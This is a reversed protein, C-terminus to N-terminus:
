FKIEFAAKINSENEESEDESETVEYGLSVKAAENLNVGLGINWSSKQTNLASEIQAPDLLKYSASFTALDKFDLEIGTIQQKVNNATDLQFNARIAGLDDTFSVGFITSSGLYDEFENNRIYDASVTIRDNTQYAIGLSQKRNLEENYVATKNGLPPESETISRELPEFATQEIDLSGSEPMTIGNVDWWERSALSYGARILTHSNVTYQINLDTQTELKNDDDIEESYDADLMLNPLLNLGEKMTRSMNEGTLDFPETEVEIEDVNINSDFMSAIGLLEKRGKDSFIKDEEDPLDLTKLNKEAAKDLKEINEALVCSSFSLLMIILMFIVTKKM